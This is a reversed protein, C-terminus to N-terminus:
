TISNILASLAALKAEAVAKADAVRAAAAAMEREQEVAPGFTDWLLEGLANRVAVYQMPTYKKELLKSTLLFACEGTVHDLLEANSSFETKASELVGHTHEILIKEAEHAADFTPATITAILISM